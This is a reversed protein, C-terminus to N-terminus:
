EYYSYFSKKNVLILAVKKKKYKHFTCNMYYQLVFFKLFYYKFKM